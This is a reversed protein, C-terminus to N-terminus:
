ADDRGRSKRPRASGEALLRQMEEAKVLVRHGLRLVRVRRMRIRERLTTEKM